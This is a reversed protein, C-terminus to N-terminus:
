RLYFQVQRAGKVDGLEVALNYAAGAGPARPRSPNACTSPDSRTRDWTLYPEASEVTQGATLTVVYDSPESQCDSSRWWTDQGSTITFRQKSTGVDLICDVSGTNTLKMGLTVPKTEFTEGHVVPLLEIVDPDCAQPAPPGTPTAEPTPTAAPTTAAPSPTVPSAAEDEAVQSPTPEPQALAAILGNWPQAIVAWVVAAIVVLVSFLLM